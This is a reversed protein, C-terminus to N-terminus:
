PARRTTQYESLRALQAARVPAQASAGVAKNQQEFTDYSVYFVTLVGIALFTLIFLWIVFFFTWTPEPDGDGPVFDEIHDPAPSSM